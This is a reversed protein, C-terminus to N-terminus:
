MADEFLQNTARTSSETKIGFFAAPGPIPNPNKVLPALLLRVKLLRERHLAEIVATLPDNAMRPPSVLGMSRGGFRDRLTGGEDCEGDCGPNAM